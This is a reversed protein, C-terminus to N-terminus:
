VFLIDQIGIIFFGWLGLVIHSFTCGVLTRQRAFMWGWYVGVFYVVITLLFSLHLHIMSFPLNSILISQLTRHKGLLFQELTSQMAGRYIIEQVPVFILYSVVLIAFLLYNPEQQSGPALAPSVNFLPVDHFLPDYHIMVWKILFIFVLLPISWLFSEVLAKGWGKLTFGYASWPLDVKRIMRLMVVAFIILIPVSIVTSSVVHIDLITLTRFAYFYLFILVIINILFNGM